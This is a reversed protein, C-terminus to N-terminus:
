ASVFTETSVSNFQVSIKDLLLTENPGTTCSNGINVVGGVEVSQCLLVPAIVRLKHDANLSHVSM